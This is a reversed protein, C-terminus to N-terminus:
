KFEFSGLSNKMITVNLKRIQKNFKKISYTQSASSSFKNVYANAESYRDTDVYVISSGTALKVDKLWFRFNGGKHIEAVREPPLKGYFGLLAALPAGQGVFCAKYNTETDTKVLIKGMEKWGHMRCSIDSKTPIPLILTFSQIVALMALLISPALVWTLRKPKKCNILWESVLVMASIYAIQPWNAEVKSRLGTYVFFTMMPIAVWALFFRIEDNERWSKRAASVVAIWFAPYLFLGITGLQGGLFEGTNRLVSHKNHHLGHAFQFKFSIWDNISNWYLVPITGIAALIVMAWYRKTFVLNRYRPFSLITIAIGPVFFIMNYKSLAGFGLILGTFVWWKLSESNIAKLFTYICITWALALPTDPTTVFGLAIGAPTMNLIVASWFGIKKSNLFESGVLFIVRSSIFIGVLSPLRIAIVTNGLLKCSLAILWAVMPPHDFYSWDLGRSLEWYYAEDPTLDLFVALLIRLLLFASVTIWFRKNWLKSYDNNITPETL